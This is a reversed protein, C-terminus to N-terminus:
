FLQVFLHSFESFSISAAVYEFLKIAILESRSICRLSFLSTIFLAKRFPLGTVWYVLSFMELQVPVREDRDSRRADVQAITTEERPRLFVKVREDTPSSSEAVIRLDRRHIIRPSPKAIARRKLPLLLHEGIYAIFDM